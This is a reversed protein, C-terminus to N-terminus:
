DTEFSSQLWSGLEPCKALLDAATLRGGNKRAQRLIGKLPFKGEPGVLLNAATFYQSDFWFEASLSPPKPGLALPYAGPGGGATSLDAFVMRVDSLREKHHSLVQDLVVSHALVETVWPQDGTIGGARLLIHAGDVSALLDGVALSATQEPTGRLPQDPLTPLRTGLLKQWLAVSGDDGWAPIALGRGGASESVGYPREFDSQKWEDRGLLLIVLGVKSKTLSRFDEVMLEFTDQLQVSRELSGPTYRVSVMEGPLDLLFISGSQAQSPSALALSLLAISVTATGLSLFRLASM